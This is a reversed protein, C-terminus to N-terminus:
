IKPEPAPEFVGDITVRPLPEFRVEHQGGRFSIYDGRYQLTVKM